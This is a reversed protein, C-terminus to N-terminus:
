RSASIVEFAAKNLWTAKGTKLVKVFICPDGPPAKLVLAYTRGSKVMDGVQM